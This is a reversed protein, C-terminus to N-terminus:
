NVWLSIKLEINRERHPGDALYNDTYLLYMDSRLRFRWQLRSDLNFNKFQTNYELHTTWSLTKSLAFEIKPGVIVPHSTMNSDAPSAASHIRILRHAAQAGQAATHKTFALLILAILIINKFKRYM